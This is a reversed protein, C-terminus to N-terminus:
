QILLAYDDLPLELLHHNTLPTRIIWPAITISLIETILSVVLM